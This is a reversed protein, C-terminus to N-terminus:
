PKWDPSRGLLALTRHMVPADDGVPVVDAFAGGAARVAPDAPIGAAVRAAATVIQEGPEYEKGLAMAIDWGHAVSDIFHMGVAVGGPFTGFERVTVARRPMDDDAFAATVDAASPAYDAYPDASARGSDWDSASGNRAAEAFATNESILHRLLDGLDWGECPTPRGLDAPTLGTLLDDILALAQRDLERLDM